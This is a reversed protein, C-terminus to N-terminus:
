YEASETDNNQENPSDNVPIVVRNKGSINGTNEEENGRIEGSINEEENEEEDNDEKEVLSNKM